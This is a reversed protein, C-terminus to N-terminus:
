DSSDQNFKMEIKPVAVIKFKEVPHFDIGSYLWGEKFEWLKVKIGDPVREIHIEYKKDKKIKQAMISRCVDMAFSLSHCYGYLEYKEGHYLLCSKKKGILVNSKDDYIDRTIHLQPEIADIKTTDYLIEDASLKIVCTSM